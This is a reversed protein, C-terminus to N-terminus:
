CLLFGFRRHTWTKYHNLVSIKVELLVFFILLGIMVLAKATNARSLCPKAIHWFKKGFPTFKLAWVAVSLVVAVWFFAKFLWFVATILEYQWDM